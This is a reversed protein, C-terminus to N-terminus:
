ISSKKIFDEISTSNAAIAIWEDLVSVDEQSLIKKRLEEPISFRSSLVILISEAKGKVEGKAEGEERSWRLLDEGTMYKAELEANMKVKKVKEHLMKVGSARGEAVFKDTSNEIYALFERLEVSISEPNKGKTSIFITCTEDGLPM